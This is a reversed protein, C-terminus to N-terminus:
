DSLKDEDRLRSTYIRKEEETILFKKLREITGKDWAAKKIKDLLLYPDLKSVENWKKINKILQELREWDEPNVKKTPLKEKDEIKVKLKFDSGRIVQLNENKVYNYILEELSKKELELESRRRKLDVYKNVLQVGGDKLYDEPPLLEVEYFHKKSPCISYFQCWDCLNSERPPFKNEKKMKEIHNILEITKAKLVNLEDKTRQSRMEKDFVLYHWVLDITKVDRWKNEVGIQYLALQRDSDLISQDPLHGSTKYDHIEYQGDGTFALRDIFGRIKYKGNDDLSILISQETGLTKGQDFPYYRHYYDTLCKEGVNRYHEPTYEKKVVLISDLWNKQWIQNYNSILEELSTKKTMRLDRYLKELAEHVRSGLFTEITQEVKIEIKEVYKYKFQLPCNEYTRLRSHSYVPM